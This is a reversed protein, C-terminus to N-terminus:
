LSIFLKGTALKYGNEILRNALAQANALVQTSYKVFESTQCQRLAVAIAAFIHILQNQINNVPFQIITHDV